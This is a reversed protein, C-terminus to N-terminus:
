GILSSGGDALSVGFGPVGSSRSQLQCSLEDWEPVNEKAVSWWMRRKEEVQRQQLHGIDAMTM